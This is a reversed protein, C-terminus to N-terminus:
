INSFKLFASCATSNPVREKQSPTSMGPGANLQTTMARMGKATGLSGITAALASVKKGLPGELYGKVIDWNSLYFPIEAVNYQPACIHRYNGGTLAMQTQGIKMLELVANEKGLQGSMFIKVNMRGESKQEVIEKFKKIGAEEAGGPKMTCNIDINIKAALANGSMLLIVLVGVWTILRSRKM